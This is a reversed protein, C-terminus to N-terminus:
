LVSVSTTHTTETEEMGVKQICKCIVGFCKIKDFLVERFKEGGLVYIFFNSGHDIGSLVFAANTLIRSTYTRPHHSHYIPLVARPSECIVFLIGSIFLNIFLFIM